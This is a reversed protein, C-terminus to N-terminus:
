HYSGRAAAVSQVLRLSILSFVCSMSLSKITGPFHGKNKVPIIDLWNYGKRKFSAKIGLVKKSEDKVAGLGAPTETYKKNIVATKEKIVYKNAEYKFDTENDEFNYWIISVVHSMKKLQSSYQAFLSLNVILSFIALIKLLSKM